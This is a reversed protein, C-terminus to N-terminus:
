VWYGGSDKHIGSGNPLAGNPVTGNGNGNDCVHNKIVLGTKGSTEDVVKDQIVM